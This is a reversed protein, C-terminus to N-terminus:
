HATFPRTPHGRATLFQDALHLADADTLHNRHNSEQFREILKETKQLGNGGAALHLQGTIRLLPGYLFLLRDKKGAAKDLLAQLTSAHAAGLGGTREARQIFEQAAVSDGENSFLTACQVLRDAARRPTM